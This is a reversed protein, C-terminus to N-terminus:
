AARYAVPHKAEYVAIEKEHVLTLAIDDLGELLCKKQFPDIEFRASWGFDDTVTQGELDIKLQYGEYKSIARLLAEVEDPKLIIPLLGNKMSNNRFIDAFSPAIVTRFGFDMLAWVAHERSSGSGFNQRAVLVSADRYRPKNLIFDRNESGDANLRWDFFLGKALGSRVVAKLFQKPIIQDTDVNARDLPAALGSFSKFAQM